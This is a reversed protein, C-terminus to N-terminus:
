TNEKGIMWVRWLGFIRIIKKRRTQWQGLCGRQYSATEIWQKDRHVPLLGGRSKIRM